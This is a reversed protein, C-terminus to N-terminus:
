WAGGELTSGSPRAPVEEAFMLRSWSRRETVNGGAEHHWLLLSVSLEMAIVGSLAEETTSHHSDGEKNLVDTCSATLCTSCFQSYDVAQENQKSPM